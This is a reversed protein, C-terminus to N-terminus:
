SPLSRVALVSLYPLLVVLMMAPVAVGSDNLAFGLLGAVLAGVLCARLGPVREQLLGLRGTPRWTLFALFALGVPILYAWVSSTLISLNAELKRQLIPGAGGETLREVFRGLHTRQDTPRGLDIAAFLGLTLVTALVVAAVRLWGLRWGALIALVAVFAPFTALVGGVDSGMWPLGDVVLTVGLVAAAVGLPGAAREPRDRAPPSGDPAPAVRGLMAWAMTATAIAAMALLAFALNGFGAFRGAIIPSYGFVTDIQLRSGTAVDVVLIVVVLGTLALPPGLLGARGLPLSAAALACAAALAAITYGAVGLRDYPVLGSLFAVSPFALVALAAVALAPRWRVWGRFLALIVALYVLVQLVIFVVTVPGVARDRFVALENARVLDAVTSADPARGGASTVATGNMADPVDVGLADLVTPAIDPLTVYGGRRTTASRALGPEVGPGALAFVTLQEEARPSAPGVLMVVDRAPDVLELAGALLRDSDRMAAAELADRAGPASVARYTDTRELDSAELVLLDTDDWADRAAALAADVDLRIGYPAAPDAVLLGRDVSGGAAAGRRDVVALAVERHWEEVGAPTVVDANGVAAARLGAGALAEGLAGPEAGYSLRDNRATLEAIGPFLIAGDAVAGTRREYAEAVDGDEFPASPGGALGVQVPEAAARNGASLTAYGEGLSTKPGITRVSLSAVASRELLGLLAPPRYREVMAWTVRPLSVVLVRGASREGDGPTAGAAPAAGALVGLAMVMGALAAMRRLASM